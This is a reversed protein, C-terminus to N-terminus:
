QAKPVSQFGVERHTGDCFPKKASHGCRCLAISEQTLTFPNGDPDLLTIPGRVLYPGNARLSVTVQEAM